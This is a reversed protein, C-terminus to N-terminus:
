LDLPVVRKAPFRRYVLEGLGTAGVLPLLALEPTWGLTAVVGLAPLCLLFGVVGFGIVVTYHRSRAAREDEEVLMMRVSENALDM